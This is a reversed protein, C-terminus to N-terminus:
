FSPLSIKSASYSDIETRYVYKWKKGSEELVNWEMEQSGLQDNELLLLYAKM